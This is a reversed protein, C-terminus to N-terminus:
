TTFGRGLPTPVDAGTRVGGGRPTGLEPGITELIGCSEGGERTVVLGGLPTPLEPGSRMGRGLPTPENEETTAGMPVLLSRPPPPAAGLPRRAAAAGPLGVSSM